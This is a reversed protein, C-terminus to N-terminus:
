VYQSEDIEIGSCGDGDGDIESSDDTEAEGCGNVRTHLIQSQGITCYLSIRQWVM